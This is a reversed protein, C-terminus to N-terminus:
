RRDCECGIVEDTMAQTPRHPQEVTAQMGIAGLRQRQEGDPRIGCDTPVGVVVSQSIAQGAIALPHQHLHRIHQKASLAWGFDDAEGLEQFFHQVSFERGMGEGM